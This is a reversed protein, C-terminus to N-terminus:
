YDIQKPDIATQSKPMTTTSWSRRLEARTEKTTNTSSAEAQSAQTRLSVKCNKFPLQQNPLNLLPQNRHSNWRKWQPSKWLLPNPLHKLKKRKVRFLQNQPLQAYKRSNQPNCWNLHNTPLIKQFQLQSLSATASWSALWSIRKTKPQLLRSDM